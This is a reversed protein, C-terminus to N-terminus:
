WVSLLQFACLVFPLLWLGGKKGSGLLDAPSNAGVADWLGVRCGASGAAIIRWVSLVNFATLICVSCPCCGCGVMAALAWCIQLDAAAWPTGCVWGAALPIRRPSEDSPLHVVPQQFACLILM